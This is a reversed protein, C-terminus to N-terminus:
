PNFPKTQLYEKVNTSAIQEFLVDGIFERVGISLERESGKQAVVYFDTGFLIRKRLKEDTELLLKLLPWIDKDYLMFSIDSYLNPYKHIMDKITSFWSYYKEPNQLSYNWNKTELSPYMSDGQDDRAPNWPLQLYKKWEESGGFHALCVKLNRYSELSSEPLNWHKSVISPEMLFHFNLPNSFHVCFDKAKEGELSIHTAVPHQHFEKKGRYHVVGAVCHTMIPVDYQLCFDYVPKMTLDTPWYGLAPYMKVGSFKASKLKSKMVELYEPKERIRRADAFIFPFLINKFEEKNKLEELQEIQKMYSEPVKGADMYEMDMPLVIFGTGKPYYGKMERFIDEQTKEHSDAGGGHKVLNIMREAMEIKDTNGTFNQVSKILWQLAGIKRLWSLSVTMGLISFYGKAFEDPVHKLTFIHTHANFFSFGM